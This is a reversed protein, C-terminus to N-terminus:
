VEGRDALQRREWASSFEWDEPLKCLGSKVPNNEIYRFARSFHDADRIYRDFMERMWFQGDRKLARNSQLATYSKLSQVIKELSHGPLPRLLFHTHNPMIVWAKLKYRVGDFKRLSDRVIEAVERKRLFCQGYGADLYKEALVITEREIDAPKKIEIEKRIKALLSAPLSDFLRCTVFQTRTDGADFHPLYGRSYWGKPSKSDSM